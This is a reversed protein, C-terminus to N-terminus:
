FSFRSRWGLFNVFNKLCTRKRAFLGSKYNVYNRTWFFEMFIGQLEVLFKTSIKKKIKQLENNKGHFKWSIDCPIEHNYKKKIKFKRNYKLGHFFPFKGHTETLIGPFSGPYFLLILLLNSPNRLFIWSFKLM